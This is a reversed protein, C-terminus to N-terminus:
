YFVMEGTYGEKGMPFAQYAQELEAGFQWGANPEFYLFNDKILGTENGLLILNWAHRVNYGPIRGIVPVWTNLNYLSSAESWVKFAYNICTFTPKYLSSKLILHPLLNVCGEVDTYWYTAHVGPYLPELGLPELKQSVTARTTLWKKFSPLHIVTQQIKIKSM